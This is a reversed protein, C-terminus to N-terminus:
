AARHAACCFALLLDHFFRGGDGDQGPDVPRAFAAHGAPKQLFLAIDKEIGVGDGLLDAVKVGVDRERQGVGVGPLDAFREELLGDGAALVVAELGGEASAGDRLEELFGGAGAVAQLDPKAPQGAGVEMDAADAATDRVAAVINRDFFDAFAPVAAAFVEDAQEGADVM